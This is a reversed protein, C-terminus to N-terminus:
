RTQERRQQEAEIAQEQETHEAETLVLCTQRQTESERWYECRIADLVAQKRDLQEQLEAVQQRLQENEDVVRQLEVWIEDTRTM